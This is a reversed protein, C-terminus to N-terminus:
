FKVKNFMWCIALARQILMKLDSINAWYKLFKLEAIDSGTNIRMKKELM